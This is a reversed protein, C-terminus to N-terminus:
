EVEVKPLVFVWLVAECREFNREDKEKMEDPEMPKYAGDKCEMLVSGKVLCAWSHWCIKGCAVGRNM